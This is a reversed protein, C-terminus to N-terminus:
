NLDEWTVVGQAEAGEGVPKGKMKNFQEDLKKRIQENDLGQARLAINLELQQKAIEVFDNYAAEFEAPGMDTNLMTKKLRELEQYSAAAGTIEKRYQNFMREVATRFQVEGGLFKKQEKSAMGLKDAKDAIGRAIKGEYTLYRPAYREGIIALDNLLQIGSMEKSEIDGKTKKTTDMAPGMEIIPNGNADYSISVGQQRMRALDAKQQFAEQSLVDPKFPATYIPKGTNPDVLATGPGVSVPKGSSFSQKMYENVVSDPAFQLEPPLNKRFNALYEQEQQQAQMDAQAKQMQLDYLKQQMQQQQMMSQAQAYQGFANGLIGGVTQFPQSGNNALIAAGLLGPNFDM